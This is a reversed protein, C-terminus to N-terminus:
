KTLEGDSIEINCIEYSQKTFAERAKEFALDQYNEDDSAEVFFRITATAYFEYKSM